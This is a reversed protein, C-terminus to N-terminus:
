VAGNVANHVSAHLVSCLLCKRFYLSNEGFSFTERRNAAHKHICSVM